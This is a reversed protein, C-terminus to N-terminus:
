LLELLKDFPRCLVARDNHIFIPRQMLGPHQAFLPVLTADDENGNLGLEKYAKERRRLLTNAPVDLQRLVTQIELESLPSRKYERYEFTM